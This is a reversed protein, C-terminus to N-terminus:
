TLAADTTVTLAAYGSGSKLINTGVLTLNTTGENIFLAPFGDTESVDINANDLTINITIDDDITIYNATSTGTIVYDYGGTLLIENEAYTFGDAAQNVTGVNITVVGAAQAIEHAFPGFGVPSTYTGGGGSIPFFSAFGAMLAMVTIVSLLKKSKTFM